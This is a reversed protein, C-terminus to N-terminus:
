NPAKGYITIETGPNDKDAYTTHKISVPNAWDYLVKADEVRMNICGHSMPAGFNNHWYAGHIGYGRSKPIENNYFFMTYPVNPLNYYTGIAKNGGSMRTSNLKAWIRFDGTPTRGWKGSSITFEYITEDGEKAYLKQNTLDIEIKKNTSTSDGLVVNNGMSFNLNTPSYVTKGMFEGKVQNPNQEGSLDNICSISNACIKSSEGKFLSFGLLIIGFLAFAYIYKYYKKRFPSSSPKKAAM